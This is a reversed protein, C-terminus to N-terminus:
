CLGQENVAITLHPISDETKKIPEGLDRPQSTFGRHELFEIRFPHITQEKVSTFGQTLSLTVYHQERRGLDLLMGSEKKVAGFHCPLCPDHVLRVHYLCGLGICTTTPTPIVILCIGIPYGPRRCPEPQM